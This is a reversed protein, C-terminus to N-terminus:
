FKFIKKRNEAIESYSYETDSDSRAAAVSGGFVPARAGAPQKNYFQTATRYFSNSKGENKMQIHLLRAENYARLGPDKQEDETLEDYSSGSKLKAKVEKSIDPLIGDKVAEAWEESMRTYEAKQADEREKLTTRQREENAKREADLRKEIKEEAIRVARETTDDQFKEWSEPGRDGYRSQSKGSLSRAIEEKLSDVKSSAIAEAKETSKSEVLASIQEESLSSQVPSAPAAAGEDGKIKVEYVPEPM